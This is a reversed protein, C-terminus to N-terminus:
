FWDSAPAQYKLQMPDFILRRVHIGGQESALNLNHARDVHVVAVVGRARALLSPPPFMGGM